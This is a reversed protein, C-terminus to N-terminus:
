QQETIQVKQENNSLTDERRQNNDSARSMVGCFDMGFLSLFLSIIIYDSEEEEEEEESEKIIIM